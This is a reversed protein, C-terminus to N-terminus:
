VQNEDSQLSLQMELDNLQRILSDKQLVESNFKEKILELEAKFHIEVSKIRLLKIFNNSTISISFLTWSYKELDARTLDHNQLKYNYEDENQKLQFKLGKIEALLKANREKEKLLKFFFM